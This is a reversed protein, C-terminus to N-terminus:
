FSNEQTRHKKFCIGLGNRSNTTGFPRLEFKKTLSRIEM